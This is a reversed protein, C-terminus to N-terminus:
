VAAATAEADSRELNTGRRRPMQKAALYRFVTRRSMHLLDAIREPATGALFLTAVQDALQPIEEKSWARVFICEALPCTQCHPWVHCGEDRYETYEPLADRRM